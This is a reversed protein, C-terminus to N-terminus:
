IAHEPLLTQLLLLVKTFLSFPLKLLIGWSHAYMNRLQLKWRLRGQMDECQILYVCFSFLLSLYFHSPVYFSAKISLFSCDSESLIKGSQVGITQFWAQVSSDLKIFYLSFIMFSFLSFATVSKQSYLYNWFHFQWAWCWFHQLFIAMKITLRICDCLCEGTEKVAKCITTPQNKQKNTKLNSMHPSMPQLKLPVSDLLSASISWSFILFLFWWPSINFELFSSFLCSLFFFSIPLYALFYCASSLKFCFIISWVLGASDM